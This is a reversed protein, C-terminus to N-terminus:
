FHVRLDPGLVVRRDRTKARRSVIVYRIVGGLVLAGGVSLVSVAAIGLKKSRDGLREHQMLTDAREASRRDARAQVFLGLGVGVAVTGGIVLAGGFPDAYWPRATPKPDPDVPPGEDAPDDKAGCRARGARAVEADERKLDTELLQDYLAVAAVCNGRREEVKARMFVFDPLPRAAEAREIESLAVAYKEDHLAEAVRQAVERVFADDSTEGEAPAAALCAWLIAARMM